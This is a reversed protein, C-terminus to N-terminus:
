TESKSNKQMVWARGGWRGQKALIATGDNPLLDGQIALRAAAQLGEPLCPPRTFVQHSM